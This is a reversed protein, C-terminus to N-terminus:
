SGDVGGEARPLRVVFVSGRPENDEIAVSGGYGDVLRDVLYLGISTVPSDIGREGRGFVREKRSDPIGPGDDAIRVVAADDVVEVSATVTPRDGDHHLVANSLLNDFVSSLMENGHVAVAPLEGDVVFTADEFTRRNKTLQDRLVHDFQTPRSPLEEDHTLAEALDRVERTLELTHEVADVINEFSERGGPAVHPELEAAWGLVVNMDNRLDHRLVRNLVDLEDTLETLRGEREKQDALDRLVVVTTGEYRTFRADAPVTEGDVVFEFTLRQEDSDGGEIRDFTAALAERDRPVVYQTQFWDLTEDLLEDRDRGSIEGVRANADVLVREDDFVYVADQLADYPADLVEHEVQETM